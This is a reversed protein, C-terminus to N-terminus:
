RIGQLLSAAIERAHASLADDAIEGATWFSLVGRFAFALQRSLNGSPELREEDDNGLALSWLTMSHTLVNGPEPGATGIWSMVGRNVLPEELIVAVAVDVAVLVRDVPDQSTSMAAFRMLMMDIRRGSLAHMIAAKNGFHNFPTAFSVGGESALDRMSFDAKGRRLLQEAANLIRHRIPEGRVATHSRIAKDNTM